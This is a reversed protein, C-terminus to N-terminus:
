TAPRTRSLEVLNRVVQEHPMSHVLKTIAADSATIRGEARARQLRVILQARLRKTLTHGPPNASRKIKHPKKDICSYLHAREIGHQPTNLRM